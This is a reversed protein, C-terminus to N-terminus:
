SLFGLTNGNAKALRILGQKTKGSAGVYECFNGIAQSHLSIGKGRLKNFNKEGIVVRAAIVVPSFPGFASVKAMSWRPEQRSRKAVSKVASNEVCVFSSRGTSLNGSVSGASVGSIFAM